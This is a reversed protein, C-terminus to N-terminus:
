LTTYLLDLLLWIHSYANTKTLNYGNSLMRIIGGNTRHDSGILAIAIKGYGFLLKIQKIDIPNIGRKTQQDLLKSNVQDVLSSLAKQSIINSRM